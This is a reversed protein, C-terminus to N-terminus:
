KDPPVDPLTDPANKEFELKEAQYMAAIESDDKGAMRMAQFWGQLLVKGLEVVGAIILTTSM